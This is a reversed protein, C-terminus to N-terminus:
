CYYGHYPGSCMSAICAFLIFMVFTIFPFCGCGLGWFPWPRWYRRRWYRRRWPRYMRRRPWFM